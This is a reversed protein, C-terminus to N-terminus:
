DACRQVNFTSPPNTSLEESRRCATLHSLWETELPTNTSLWDDCRQVKLPSNRPLELRHAQICHSPFALPNRPTLKNSVLVGTCMSDYTEQYSWDLHRRANLPLLNIQMNAPVTESLELRQTQARQPTLQKICSTRGNACM